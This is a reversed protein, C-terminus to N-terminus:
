LRITYEMNEEGKWFNGLFFSIAATLDFNDTSPKESGIKRSLYFLQSHKTGKLQLKVPIRPM